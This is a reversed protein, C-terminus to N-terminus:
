KMAKRIAQKEEESLQYSSDGKEIPKAYIRTGERGYLSSIVLGNNDKDLLAIVFSQDGGTDKFPNFRVVGVKQISIDALKQLNEDWKFLKKIDEEMSKMRKVQEAIVEELDKTKRGKFFIKIRKRTKELRFQLFVNWALLVLVAILALLYFNDKIFAIISNM